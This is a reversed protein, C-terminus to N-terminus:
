RGARQVFVEAAYVRAPDGTAKFSALAAGVDSKTGMILTGITFTKNAVLEAISVLYTANTGVASLKGKTETLKVTLPQTPTPPPEVRWTGEHGQQKYRIVREVSTPVTRKMAGVWSMVNKLRLHHPGPHRNALPTGAYDADEYVIFERKARAASSLAGNMAEADAFPCIQDGRGHLIRVNVGALNAALPLVAARVAQGGASEPIIAAFQDPFSVGYYWTYYGAQSLGTMTFASPDVAYNLRLHTLAANMVEAMAQDIAFFQQDPFRKEDEKFRAIQPRFLVCTEVAPNSEWFAIGDEADVSGHDPLVLVPFRKTGDYSKPLRISYTWSQGRSTFAVDHYTGPKAKTLPRWTSFIRALTAFDFKAVDCAKKLAPAEASGTAQVYAIVAERLKGEDAGQGAARATALLLAAAIWRTKSSM